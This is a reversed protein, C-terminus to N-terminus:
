RGDNGEKNPNSEESKVLAHGKCDAWAACWRESCWWGQDNLPWHPLDAEILDVIRDIQHGLFQFHGDDRVIPLVEADGGHVLVAYRFDTLDMAYCYVTPQIAWRQYEWASSSYPRAATKWDWVFGGEDVCDITGTLVVDASTHTFPVEFTYEVQAPRVQPLIDREWKAYAEDALERVREPTYRTKKWGDLEQLTHAIIDYPESHVMEGHLLHDLKYEIAAHVATGLVMSDTETREVEGMLERRAQEPCHAFGNLWSQRFRYTM